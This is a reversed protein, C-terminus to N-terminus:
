LYFIQMIPLTIEIKDSHGFKRARKSYRPELLILRISIQSPLYTLRNARGIPMFSAIFRREKLKFRYFM